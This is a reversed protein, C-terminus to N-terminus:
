SKGGGKQPTDNDGNRKFRGDKGRERRKAAESRRENAEQHERAVEPDLGNQIEPEPDTQMGFDRKVVNLKDRVKAKIWEAHAKNVALHFLRVGVERAVVVAVATVVPKWPISTLVRAKKGNRLLPEM